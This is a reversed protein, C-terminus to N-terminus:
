ASALKAPKLVGAELAVVTTGAAVLEPTHAAVIVIKKAALERLIATVM